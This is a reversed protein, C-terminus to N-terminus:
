GDKKGIATEKKFIIEREKISDAPSANEDNKEIIWGIVM